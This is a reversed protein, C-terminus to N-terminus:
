RFARARTPSRGRLVHDHRRHPRERQDLQRRHEHDHRRLQHDRHRHRRLLGHREVGSIAGASGTLTGTLNVLNIGTTASTTTLNTFTATVAGNTLDLIQGTRSAANIAVTDANLTGFGSGFIGAGTTNGINVGRITNVSPSAALTVGATGAVTTTLVPATGAVLLNIPTLISPGDPDVALVVGQGILQQDAKLTIGATTNGSGTYVFIVDGAASATVAGALTNFPTASRGDGNSGSNDVYWVKAGVVITVTASQSIAGLSDKATYTFTANGSFNVAPTYTFTGDSNLTVTGSSPTGTSNITIPSNGEPDPGDNSLVSGSVVAAARTGQAVGLLLPTNGIANFTEGIVTPARNITITRAAAASAHNVSQGDDVVFSITRSTTNGSTNTFQVARLATQYNALTTTGSLTLIGTGAAYSGTIGLQNTFSLIDAAGAFGASISVTAGTLNTSDVDGVTIASTIALGGTNQNYALSASELNALTPADNVSVVTIGRTAANSLNNVGQGDDVQFSLTRAATSPNQSNNLYTVARLATQYNALTTAGTLTMKGTAADFTGTIGLQNTFALIDQGNQYGVTIQVTAGTLTTNDVDGVSITSTVATAADDETFTLAGGELNNLTPKDNVATVNIARMVPTSLNNAGSGDNVQFTLTRALTSPNDSTNQYTVARLATQYNALTTTGTLTLTGNAANFSGTIGLQNTFALVDEGTVFNNSIQVTAGVLNTDDTDGVVVSATVAKAADNETVALPTGTELGTLTPNSNAGIVAAGATTMHADLPVSLVVNSVAVAGTNKITVTYQITDGPDAKGDGDVDTLLSAVDVATITGGVPGPTPAISTASAVWGSGPTGAPLGAPQVSGILARAATYDAGDIAADGNVNRSVNSASFAQGSSQRILLLDASNVGGDNNVDGPQVNFQFAFDTGATGNGSIGTAVNDIWEGDLAKRDAPNAVNVQTVNAATLVLRLKDAAIPATLASTATFTTPDYTFNAPTADLAYTSVNDGRLQLDGFAVNVNETFRISVRNIGSWPLTNLQTGAVQTPIQYGFTANGLATRFTPDWATNNVFVGAVAPVSDVVTQTPTNNNTATGTSFTTFGTGAVSGQNYVLNVGKATTGSDVTANVLVQVTHGAPVAGINATVTEGSPTIRDELRLM